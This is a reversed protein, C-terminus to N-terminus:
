TTRPHATPCRRPPPSVRVVPGWHSGAPWTGNRSRTRSTCAQVLTAVPLTVGKWCAAASCRPRPPSARVMAM